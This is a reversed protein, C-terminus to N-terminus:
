IHTLFNGLFFEFITWVWLLGMFLLILDSRKDGLIKEINLFLNKLKFHFSFNSRWWCRFCFL